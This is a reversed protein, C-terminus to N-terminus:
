QVICWPMIMYFVGAMYRITDIRPFSTLVAVLHCSALHTPVFRHDSTSSPTHKNAFGYLFFGSYARRASRCFAWTRAAWTFLLPLSGHTRRHSLCLWALPGTEPATTRNCHGGCRIKRCPDRPQSLLELPSYCPLRLQQHTSAHVDGAVRLSMAYCRSQKLSLSPFFFHFFFIIIGLLWSERAM